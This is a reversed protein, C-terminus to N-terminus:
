RTEVDYVVVRSWKSSHNHVFEVHVAGAQYRDHAALDDFLLVLSYDYSNEVVARDTNAAQGFYGARVAPDRTLAALGQEFASLAEQGLDNKLWFYVNHIHM